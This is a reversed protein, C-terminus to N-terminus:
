IDPRQSVFCLPPRSVKSRIVKSMFFLVDDNGSVYKKLFPLCPEIKQPPVRNDHSKAHLRETVKTVKGSHSCVAM